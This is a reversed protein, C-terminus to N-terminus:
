DLENPGYDGKWAKWRQILRGAKMMADHTNNKNLAKIGQIFVQYNTKGAMERTYADGPEPHWNAGWFKTDTDFSKKIEADSTGLKKFFEEKRGAKVKKDNSKGADEIDMTIILHSHNHINEWKLKYIEKIVMAPGEDALYERFYEKLGRELVDILKINQIENINTGMGLGMRIAQIVDVRRKM